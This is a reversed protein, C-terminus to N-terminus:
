LQNNLNLILPNQRGGRLACVCGKDGRRKRERLFGGFQGVELKTFRAGPSATKKKEKKKVKLCTRIFIVM